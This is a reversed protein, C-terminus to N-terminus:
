GRCEDRLYNRWRAGENAPLDIRIEETGCGERDTLGRLMLICAPDPGLVAKAELHWHDWEGGACLGAPFPGEADLSIIRGDQVCDAPVDPAAARFEGRLAEYQAICDDATQGYASICLGLGMVLGTIQKLM